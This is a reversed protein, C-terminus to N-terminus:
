KLGKIKKMTEPRPLFGSQKEWRVVTRHNVKLKAALERQSLGRKARLAKLMDSLRRYDHPHDFRRQHASKQRELNQQRITLFKWRKM